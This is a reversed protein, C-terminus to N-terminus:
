GSKQIVTSKSFNCIDQRSCMSFDGLHKALFNHHKPEINIVQLEHVIYKSHRFIKIRRKFFATRNQNSIESQFFPTRTLQSKMGRLSFYAYTNYYTYLLIHQWIKTFISCIQFIFISLNQIVYSGICYHLRSQTGNVNELFLYTVM